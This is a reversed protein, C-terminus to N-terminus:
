WRWVTQVHIAFMSFKGGVRFNSEVSEMEVGLFKGKGRENALWNIDLM